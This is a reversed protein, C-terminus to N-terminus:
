PKRRIAAFPNDSEKPAAIVRSRDSPTLGMKVIMSELRSLRTPQFDLPNARFQALLVSLIEMAIRDSNMLVGPPAISVVEHWAAKEEDTLRLPPDGLPATPVPEDKRARKRDPNKDFAGNMQLVNSPKRPTPM